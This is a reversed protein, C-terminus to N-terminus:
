SRATSLREDGSAFSLAAREERRGGVRGKLALGPQGVVQESPQLRESRRVPQQRPRM